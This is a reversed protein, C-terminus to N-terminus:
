WETPPPRRHGHRDEDPDAEFEEEWEELEDEDLEDWDEDDLDDEWDEDDLDEDDFNEDEDEDEQLVITDFEDQLPHSTRTASFM